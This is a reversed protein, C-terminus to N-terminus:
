KQEPKNKLLFIMPILAFIFETSFAVVLWLQLSSPWPWILQIIIRSLWILTFFVYFVRLEGSGDFLKKQVIILLLSIGVLLFSFCFNIYNISQIIETPADPIYSFWNSSYPVFFHWIGVISGIICAINFLVKATKKM